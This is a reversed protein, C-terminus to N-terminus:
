RIIPMGTGAQRDAPPRSGSLPPSPRSGPCYLSARLIELGAREGGPCIQHTSDGYYAEIISEIQKARSYGVDMYSLEDFEAPVEDKGMPITPVDLAERQTVLWLRRGGRAAREVEGRFRAMAGPDQLREKMRDCFVAGDAFNYPYVYKLNGLKCYYDFSSTFWFPTIVIVDSPMASSAIKRALEDANSKQWATAVLSILLYCSTLVGAVLHPWSAWSSIAHAIVLTVCPTLTILCQGKLLDNKASLLVALTFAVLPIGSFLVLATMLPTDALGITGTRARSARQWVAAIMLLLLLALAAPHPVSTMMMAIMAAANNLEVPRPGYGAHRIQQLLIPMWAAYGSVVAVQTLLWRRFLGTSLSGSLSWIGVVVVEAGFVMWSWNHTLLMALSALAHSAWHRWGGGNLGCWLFYISSLCLLPLLSYPRVLGACITSFPAAVLLLAAIPGAQGSFIRNGVRYAVPVIAAGLLVPLALAAPQSDGFLGLWARMLLYFFPPHSEHHRLFDIMARLTPIRVIWLFQAEDCWLGGRRAMAVRLM